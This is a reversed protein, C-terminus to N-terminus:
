RIGDFEEGKGDELGAGIGLAVEVDIGQLRQGVRVIRGEMLSRIVQSMLVVGTLPRRAMEGEAPDFSEVEFALGEEGVEGLDGFDEGVQDAGSSDFFSADFEVGVELAFAEVKAGEGPRHDGLEFAEGIQVGGLDEVFGVVRKKGEGGFRYGRKLFLFSLHGVGIEDCLILEFDEEVFEFGVQEFVEVGELGDGLGFVEALLHDEGSFHSRGLSGGFFGEQDGLELPLM